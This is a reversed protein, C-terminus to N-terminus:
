DGAMCRQYEANWLDKRTGGIQDARTRCVIPSPSAAPESIPQQTAPLPYWRLGAPEQLATAAPRVCNGLRLRLNELLAQEWPNQLVVTRGKWFSTVEVLRLDPRVRHLYIGVYSVANLWGDDKARLVGGREDEDLITLSRPRWFNTSDSVRVDSAAARMASWIEPESCGALALAFGETTKVFGRDDIGRILGPKIDAASACGTFLLTLAALVVKM